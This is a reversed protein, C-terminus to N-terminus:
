AKAEDWSVPWEGPLKEVLFRALAANTEETKELLMWHNADLNTTTLNKCLRHMNETITAKKGPNCVADHTSSIYLVPMELVGGNPVDSNYAHNEKHNMYYAVGPGFGTREMGAVYEEYTEQDLMLEFPIEEPSPPKSLGGMLGGNKRATAFTPIEGAPAPPVRSSFIKVAGAKDSDLWAVAKEYSEEFFRMYDWQGYPYQDVPYVDRDVTTVLHDLGLEVSRYPVSLFAVAKCKEPHHAM